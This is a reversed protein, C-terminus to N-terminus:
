RRMYQVSVVNFVAGVLCLLQPHQRTLHARITIPVSGCSGGGRSDRVRFNDCALFIQSPLRALSGLTDHNGPLLQVPQLPIKAVLGILPWAGLLEGSILTGQRRVTYRQFSFITTLSGQPGRSV